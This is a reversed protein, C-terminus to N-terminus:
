KKRYALLVKGWVGVLMTDDNLLVCQTGVPVFKYKEYSVEEAFNMDFRLVLTDTTYDEMNNVKIDEEKILAYVGPRFKGGENFDEVTEYSIVYEPNEYEKDGLRFKQESYELEYGIFDESDYLNEELDGDLTTGTYMKSVVAVKEIQWTGFFCYKNNQTEAISDMRDKYQSTSRWEEIPYFEGEVAECCLLKQFDETVFLWNSSHAERNDYSYFAREVAECCLIEQFDERVFFWNLNTRNDEWEEGVYIPYYNGLLKTNNDYLEIPELGLYEILCAQGGSKEYIYYKYEDIEPVEQRLYVEAEYWDTKSTEETVSIEQMDKQEEGSNLELLSFKDKKISHVDILLVAIVTVACLIYIVKRNIKM